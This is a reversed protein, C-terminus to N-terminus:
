SVMVAGAFVVKVRLGWAGVIMSPAVLCNVALAAAVNEAEQPLM